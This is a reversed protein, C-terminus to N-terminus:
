TSITKVDPLRLSSSGAPGSCAYVPIAKWLIYYDKNGVVTHFSKYSSLLAFPVWQQMKIAISFVKINNVAVYVVIFLSIILTKGHYCDTCSSAVIYHV